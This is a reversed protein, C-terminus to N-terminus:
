WCKETGVSSSYVLIKVGNRDASVQFDTIEKNEIKFILRHSFTVNVSFLAPDSLEEGFNYKRESFLMFDM